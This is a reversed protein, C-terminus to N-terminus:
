EHKAGRMDAGCNPCFDTRIQTRSELDESYFTTAPFDCETCVIVTQWGEAKDEEGCEREIWKGRVNKRVDASSVHEIAFRDSRYQNRQGLVYEDDEDWLEPDEGLADIADQRNILDSM